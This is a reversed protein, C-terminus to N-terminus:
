DTIDSSSIVTVVTQTAAHILFAVAHELTIQPWTAGLNMQKILMLASFHFFLILNHLNHMFYFLFM